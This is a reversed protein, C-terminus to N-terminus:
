NYTDTQSDGDFEVVVGNSFRAVCPRYNAVAAQCASLNASAWAVSDITVYLKLPAQIDNGLYTWSNGFYVFECTADAPWTVPNSSSTINGGAWVNKAGTDNVNLTIAGQVTNANSFNVLVRAGDFLEFGDLTATKAATTAGTSSLAIPISGLKARAAAITTEGTGGRSIGLTGSTIDSAAHNHSSAAAGINAPTLNILGTYYYPDADGKVGQVYSVQAGAEIGNLKEKDAASMFGASGGSGSTSPSANSHSHSIAAFANQCFSKIESVAQTLGTTDIFSM